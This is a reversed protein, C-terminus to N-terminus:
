TIEALNNASVKCINGAIASSYRARIDDTKFRGTILLRRGAEKGEGVVVM